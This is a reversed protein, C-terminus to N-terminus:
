KVMENSCQSTPAKSTSEGRIKVLENRSIKCVIRPVTQILYSSFKHEETEDKGKEIRLM